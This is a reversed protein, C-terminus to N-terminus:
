KVKGLEEDIHKIFTSQTDNNTYQFLRNKKMDEVSQKFDRSREQASLSIITPLCMTTVPLGKVKMEKNLTALNEIIVKDIAEKCNDQLLDLTENIYKFVYNGYELAEKSNAIYGQHVVKNRFEVWKRKMPKPEVKLTSLFLFYFAGLQRESHNKCYNWVKAFDKQKVGNEYIFVEISFEFFRELSSAFNSVAERSYGDIIAMVGFDFLIEFKMQQLVAVFTHGKDCTVEYFGNDNLEVNSQRLNNIESLDNKEFTEAMCQSCSIMLKM